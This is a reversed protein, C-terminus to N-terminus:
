AGSLARWQISKREYNWTFTVEYCTGGPRHDSVGNITWNRDDVNANPGAVESYMNDEESSPYLANKVDKSLLIHFREQRSAGLKVITTYTADGDKNVGEKMQIFGQEEEDNVGNWSGYLYVAGTASGASATAVGHMYSGTYCNSCYAYNASEERVLQCQHVEFAAVDSYAERCHLCMKGHCRPCSVLIRGVREFNLKDKEVPRGFMAVATGTASTTLRPAERGQVRARGCVWMEMRTNTGGFGFSSLGAHNALKDLCTNESLWLAPYGTDEIHHNLEALHCNSPMCLRDLSLLTKIQANLGAGVECHGTM